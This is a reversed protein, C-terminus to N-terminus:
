PLRVVFMRRWNKGTLFWRGTRVCYAIGNLVDDRGRPSEQRVLESCDIVRVVNGTAVDIQVIFNELFVNAYVYGGVYELENLRALSRGAMTVPLKRVIQFDRDRWYLTDTGNSMIYNASDNTLGWGEGDYRFMSGRPRLSPFDYRLAIGETWTLQVLEGGLTAIGEAFVDPVRLNSIVEGTAANVRRLSSRGVLGTSEYIISDVIFLGQTFAAPDHPIIELIQPTVVPVGHLASQTQTRRLPVATAFALSVLSLCVIFSAYFRCPKIMFRTTM